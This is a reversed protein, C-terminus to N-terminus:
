VLVRERKEKNNEEVPLITWFSITWAVRGISTNETSSNTIIANNPLESMNLGGAIRICDNDSFYGGWNRFVGFGPPLKKPNGYCFMTKNTGSSNVASNASDFKLWLILDLPACILKAVLHAIIRVLQSYNKYTIFRLKHVIENQYLFEIVNWNDCIKALNYLAKYLM